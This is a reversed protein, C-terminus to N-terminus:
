GRRVGEVCVYGGDVAEVAIQGSLNCTEVAARTAALDYGTIVAVGIVVVIVAVVITVMAFTAWDTKKRDPKETAM